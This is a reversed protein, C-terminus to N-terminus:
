HEYERITDLVFEDLNENGSIPTGFEAFFPNLGAPTGAYLTCGHSLLLNDLIGLILTTPQHVTLMLYLLDDQMVYTPTCGGAM